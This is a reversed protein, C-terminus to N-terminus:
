FGSQSLGTVLFVNAASLGLYIFTVVAIVQVKDLAEIALAVKDRGKIEFNEKQKRPVLFLVVSILFGLVFSIINPLFMLLVPVVPGAFALLAVMKSQEFESFLDSQKKVALAAKIALVLLVIFLVIGM